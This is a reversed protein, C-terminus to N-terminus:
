FDPQLYTGRAIVRKLHPKEVYLYFLFMMMQNLFIGAFGVVSLFVMATGYGYAQGVTYMPNAMVSYPGERTFSVVPRGLFLDKYYYVDIGVVMTSWVNTVMGVLATLIGLPPLLASYRLNAPLFVGTSTTALLTFSMGGALFMLATIAQYIEFGREEGYRHKLRVAVGQPTFSLFLFVYRAIFVAVFLMAAVAMGTRGALVLNAATAAVVAGILFLRVPTRRDLLIGSMALYTVVLRRIFRQM